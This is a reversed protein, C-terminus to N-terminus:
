KENDPTWIISEQEKESKNKEEVPKKLKSFISGTSVTLVISVIMVLGSGEPTDPKIWSNAVIGVVLGLGGAIGLKTILEPIM